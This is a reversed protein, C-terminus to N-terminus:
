VVKRKWLSSWVVDSSCMEGSLCVLWVHLVFRIIILTPPTALSAPGTGEPAGRPLEEAAAAAEGRRAWTGIRVTFGGWVTRFNRM